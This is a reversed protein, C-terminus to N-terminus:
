DGLRFLARLNAGLMRQEDEASAGVARVIGAPDPPGMEFPYDSGVVVRDPGVLGILYQLAPPHFLVSDYYFHRILGMPDSAGGTRAVPWADYGHHLRGIQYPFMGGGHVLIFRLDPYRDLVGGFLLSAAAITTDFPYGLFNYLNYRTLRGPGPPDYPHLLVPVGLGQAAEWLPDLEPWDLNQGDINTTLYLGNLHLSTVAYELERAALKGDQAPVNAMGLWTLDDPAAAIDEALLENFTRAWSAGQEASLNYGTADVWSSLVAAEVGVSRMREARVDIETLGPLM